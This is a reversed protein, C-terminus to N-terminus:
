RDLFCSSPPEGVPSANALMRRVSAMLEGLIVATAGWIEHQGYCVCPANFQLRGRIIRHEGYCDPNLLEALTPEVVEAVEAPNPHYVPRRELVAVLPTVMFNSVFVYVPTLAGLLHAPRAPAGLEEEFERLCAQQATEGREIRGGPFCVQHPHALGAPRLTMALRWAGAHRYMAVLVAAKRHGCSAPGRHRGYALEPSMLPADVLPPPDAIAASLRSPLDDIQDIAAYSSESM